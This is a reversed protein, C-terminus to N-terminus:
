KTKYQMQFIKASLCKIRVILNTQRREKFGKWDKEFLKEEEKEKMVTHSKNLPPHVTNSLTIGPFILSWFIAFLLFIFFLKRVLRPFSKKESIQNSFTNRKIWNNSFHKKSISTSLLNYNSNGIRKLYCLLHFITAIRLLFLTAAKM